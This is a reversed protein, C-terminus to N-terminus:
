ELETPYVKHDPDWWVAHFTRGHRFGWLRKTGDLRFRFIEEDIIEEYRRNGLCAQAESISTVPQSHHKRHGGARQAEIETWSLESMNCIFQVAAAAHEPGPTFCWPQGSARDKQGVGALDEALPTALPIAAFRPPSADVQIAARRAVVDCAPRGRGIDAATVVRRPM